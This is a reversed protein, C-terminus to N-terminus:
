RLVLPIWYVTSLSSGWGGNAFEWIGVRRRLCFIESM